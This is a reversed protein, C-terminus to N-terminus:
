CGFLALCPEFGTFFLYGMPETLGLQPVGEGRPALFPTGRRGSTGSRGVVAGLSRGPTVKELFTALMVGVHEWSPM